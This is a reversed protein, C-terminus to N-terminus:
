ILPYFPAINRVKVTISFNVKKIYNEHRKAHTPCVCYVLIHDIIDTWTLSFDHEINKREPKHIREIIHKLRTPKFLYDDIVILAYKKEEKQYFALLWEGVSPYVGMKWCDKRDVFQIKENKQKIMLEVKNRLLIQHKAHLSPIKRYYFGVKQAYSWSLSILHPRILREICIYGKKEGANVWKSVLKYNLGLAESLLSSTTFRQKEIESLILLLTENM